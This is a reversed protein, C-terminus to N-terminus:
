YAVIKGTEILKVATGDLSTPAAAQVAPTLKEVYVV